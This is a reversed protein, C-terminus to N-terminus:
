AKRVQAAAMRSMVAQIQEQSRKEVRELEKRHNEEQVALKDKYKIDLSELVQQNAKDKLKDRSAFVQAQRALERRKQAELSDIKAEYVEVAEEHRRTLQAETDKLKKDMRSYLDKISQLQAERQNEIKESYINKLKEVNEEGNRTMETQLMQSDKLLHRIRKDSKNELNTLQQKHLEEAQDMAEHTKSRALEQELRARRSQEGMLKESRDVVKVVRDKAVENAKVFIEDKQKNLDDYKDQYARQLHRMGLELRKESALKNLAMETKAQDAQNKAKNLLVNTRNDVQQAYGENLKNIRATEGETKKRFDNRMHEREEKLAADRSEMITQYQGELNQKVNMIAADRRDLQMEQQAQLKKARSAYESRANDVDRRAQLLATDRDGMLAHLEKEHKQNLKETREKLGDQMKSNSERTRSETDQERANITDKFNRELNERQQEHVKREKELETQYARRMSSKESDDDTTKRQLSELYLDRIRRAEDTYKQDRENLIERHKSRIGELQKEYNERVTQLEAEHRENMSRIERNKRKTSSAEKEEYEERVRRIEDTQNARDSPSVSSM